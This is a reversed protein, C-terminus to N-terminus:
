RPGPRPLELRWQTRVASPIAQDLVDYSLAHFPAKECFLRRVCRSWQKTLERPDQQILAARVDQLCPQVIHRVHRAYLDLLGPDDLGLKAITYVGRDSGRRARPVWHGVRLMVFEIHELPDERSPDIFMSVEQAPPSQSPRLPISGRRLAFHNGKRAASNCTTCAFFLNDWTWALWWYGTEATVHDRDAVVAAKPRFHETPLATSQQITECYACKGHQARYLPMRAVGYGKFIPKTGQSISQLAAALRAERARRLAEPEDGREIRIV